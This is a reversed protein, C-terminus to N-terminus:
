CTCLLFTARRVGGGARASGWAPYALLPPPAQGRQFLAQESPEPVPSLLVRVIQEESADSNHLGQEGFLRKLVSFSQEIAATSVGFCLYRMAVHIFDAAPHKEISCHHKRSVADIAFRWATGNDCQTAVKHAMAIPYHALYHAEVNAADKDSFKALRQLDGRQQDTLDHRALAACGGRLRLEPAEM